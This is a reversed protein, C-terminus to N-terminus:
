LGTACCQEAMTVAPFHIITAKFLGFPSQCQSRNVWVRTDLNFHRTYYQLQASLALKLFGNTTKCPVRHTHTSYINTGHVPRWAKSGVWSVSECTFSPIISSTFDLCPSSSVTLRRKEAGLTCNLFFFFDLPFILWTSAETKHRKVKKCPLFHSLASSDWCSM